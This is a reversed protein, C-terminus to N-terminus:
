RIHGSPISTRGGTPLVSPIKQIKSCLLIESTQSWYRMLPLLVSSFWYTDRRLTMLVTICLCPQFTSCTMKIVPARDTSLCSRLLFRFNKLTGSVLISEMYEFSSILTNSTYTFITLHTYLVLNLPPADLDSAEGFSFYSLLLLISLIYFSRLDGLFGTYFLNGVWVEDGGSAFDCRPSIRSDPLPNLHAHKPRDSQVVSVTELHSNFSM